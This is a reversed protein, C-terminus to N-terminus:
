CEVVIGEESVRQVVSDSVGFVGSSSEALIHLQKSVEHASQRSRRTKERIIPLFAFLGLFSELYELGSAAGGAMQRFKDRRARACPNIASSKTHRFLEPVLFKVGVAVEKQVVDPGPWGDQTFPHRRLEFSPNARRSEPPDPCPQDLALRKEVVAAGTTQVVSNLSVLVTSGAFGLLKLAQALPVSGPEQFEQPTELGPQVFGGL